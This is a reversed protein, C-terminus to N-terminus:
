GKPAHTQEEHVVIERRMESADFGGDISQGTFKCPTPVLHSRDACPDLTEGRARFRGCVLDNGNRRPIGQFPSQTNGQGEEGRGQKRDQGLFDCPGVDHVTMAEQRRGCKRRKRQGPKSTVFAGQPEQGLVDPMNAVLGAHEVVCFARGDLGEPTTRDRERFRHDDAACANRVFQTPEM